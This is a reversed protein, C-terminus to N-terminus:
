LITLTSLSPRIVRTIYFLFSGSVDCYSLSLKNECKYAGPCWACAPNQVCTACAYFPSCDVVFTMENQLAYSVLKRAIMEMSARLANVNAPVDVFETERVYTMAFNKAHVILFFPMAPCASVFVVNANEKELATM